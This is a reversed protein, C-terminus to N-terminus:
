IGYREMITLNVLQIEFEKPTTKTKQFLICVTKNLNLTLKNIRFYSMIRNM